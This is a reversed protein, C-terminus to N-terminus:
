LIAAEANGNNYSAQIHDNLKQTLSAQRSMISMVHQIFLNIFSSSVHLLEM